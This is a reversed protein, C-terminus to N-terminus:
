LLFFNWIHKEINTWLNLVLAMGASASVDVSEFMITYRIPSCTSMQAPGRILLMDCNKLNLMTATLSTYMPLKVKKTQMAKIIEVFTLFLSYFFNHGHFPHYLLIVM